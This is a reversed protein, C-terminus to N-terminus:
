DVRAKVLLWTHTFLLEGSDERLDIGARQGARALARMVHHLPETWGPAAVIKAWETFAREQTWTEESSIAYGASRIAQLLELRSLMRVHAPDRLRELANHLASAEPDDSSVVDAVILRGRLRLMRRVEALVAPINTFHHLSLRSLVRDFQANKFPLAEAWGVGFRGNTLRSRKFRQQALRIMEPTADVGVIERVRSALARAVIGPGCAVDLVRDAAADEFADILRQM